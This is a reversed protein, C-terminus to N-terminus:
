YVISGKEIQDRRNDYEERTIRGAKYDDKLARLQERARLEYGASTGAAGGAAGGWFGCCGTLLVGLAM